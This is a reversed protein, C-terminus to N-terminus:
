VYLFPLTFACVFAPSLTAVELPGMTLYLMDWLTALLMMRPGQIEPNQPYNPCDPALSPIKFGQSKMSSTILGSLEVAKAALSELNVQEGPM